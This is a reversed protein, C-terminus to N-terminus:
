RAQFVRPERRSSRQNRLAAVAVFFESLPTREANLLAGLVDNVRPDPVIVRTSRGLHQLQRQQEQVEEDDHVIFDSADVEIVATNPFFIVGSTSNGRDRQALADGRRNAIVDSAM